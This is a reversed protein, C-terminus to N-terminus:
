RMASGAAKRTIWVNASNNQGGFEPFHSHGSNKMFERWLINMCAKRRPACHENVNALRIFEGSGM